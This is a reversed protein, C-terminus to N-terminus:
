RLGNGPATMTQQRACLSPMLHRHLLAVTCLLLLTQAAALPVLTSPISTNTAQPPTAGLPHRRKPTARDRGLREGSMDSHAISCYPQLSPTLPGAPIPHATACVKFRPLRIWKKRAAVYVLASIIVLVIGLTIGIGM